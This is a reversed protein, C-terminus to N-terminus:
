ASTRKRGWRVLLAGPLSIIGLIAGIPLEGLLGLSPLLATLGRAALDAGLLLAAGLLGALALQTRYGEGLGFAMHGALLGVLGIAGAAVVAAAAALIAGLWCLVCSAWMSTAAVAVAALLALPWVTAWNACNRQELSGLSWRV